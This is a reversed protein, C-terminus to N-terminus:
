PAPWPTARLSHTTEELTYLRPRELPGRNPQHLVLMLQGDFRRFVMGHGADNGVIPEAEQVWPGTIEGSTSRAVAEKYGGPGFSSWLMLLEGRSNRYMFPGDTVYTKRDNPGYQRKWPAESAHFLLIPEGVAHTLDESLRVACIEGDQVQVWEHCFVMWPQGVRDVYLTGDLAYWDPPTVAETGTLSFPGEPSDSVLAWTGRLRNPNRPLFTAFMVYRGKWSHVEPAWYNDSRFGEPATFAAKPGEWQLLDASSYVMFGPGGPLRWGTGYLYYRGMEPVPLIFPDRLHIDSLALTGEGAQVPTLAVLGALAFPLM